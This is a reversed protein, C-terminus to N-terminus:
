DNRFRANEAELREIQQHLTPVAPCPFAYLPQIEEESDVRAGCGKCYKKLGAVSLDAWDHAPLFKNLWRELRENLAVQKDLQQIEEFVRELIEQKSKSGQYRIALQKIPDVNNM